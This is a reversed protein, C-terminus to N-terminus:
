TTEALNIIKLGLRAAKQLLNYANTGKHKVYAILIQSNKLLWENRKSIAFRPIALELGEPFLTANQTGSIAAEGLKSIVISYKIKPNKRSAEELVGQVMLDFGGNNGVLFETVGEDILNHIEKILRARVSSPTDRHGLFTCVM